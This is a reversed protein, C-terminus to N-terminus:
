GTQVSLVTNTPLELDQSPPGEPLKRDPVAASSRHRTATAMRLIGAALIEALEVIPQPDRKLGSQPVKDVAIGEALITASVHAKV